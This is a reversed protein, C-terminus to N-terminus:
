PFRVIAVYSSKDGHNTAYVISSVDMYTGNKTKISIDRNKNTEPTKDSFWSNVRRFEKPVFDCIYHDTVEKELFGTKELFPRNVFLIKGKINFVVIGNPVGHLVLEYLEQREILRDLKDFVSDFKAAIEMYVITSEKCVFLLQGECVVQAM